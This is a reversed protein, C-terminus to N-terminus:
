TYGQHLEIIIPSTKTDGGYTRFCMEAHHYIDKIHIYAIPSMEERVVKVLSRTVRYAKKLDIFGM